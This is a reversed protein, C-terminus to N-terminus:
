DENLYEVLEAATMQKEEGKIRVKIVDTENFERGTIFVKGSKQSPTFEGVNKLGLEKLEKNRKYMVQRAIRLIEASELTTNAVGLIGKMGNYSSFEVQKPDVLALAVKDHHSMCSMILNQIAVSKGGGTNRTFISPYPYSTGGKWHENKTDTILFLHSESDVLICRVPENEVRQKATLLYSTLRKDTIGLVRDINIQLKEAATEIWSINTVKKPFRHICDSIIKITTNNLNFELQYVKKPFYNINEVKLVKVPKNNIDFVYDGVEITKMTKYGSTTPIITDLGLPAGAVLAQPQKPLTTDQEVIHGEEDIYLSRGVLDKPVDDATFGVEGRGSLGMPMFRFNRLWAGPWRAMQPPKEEGLFEIYRSELHKEFTWKYTPLFNDLQTIYPVMSSTLDKVDSLAVPDVPVRIDQINGHKYSLSFPPNNFDLGEGKKDVLKQLIEYVQQIEERKKLIAGKRIQLIVILLITSVVLYIICLPWFLKDLFGFGSVVQLAIAAVFVMGIIISDKRTFNYADESDDSLGMTKNNVFQVLAM